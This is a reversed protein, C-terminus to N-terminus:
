HPFSTRVISVVSSCPFHGRSWIGVFLRSIFVAFVFGAVREGGSERKQDKFKIAKRWERPFLKRRSRSEGPGFLCVFALPQLAAYDHEPSLM